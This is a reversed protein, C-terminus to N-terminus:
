ASRGPPVKAGRPAWRVPAQHPGKHGEGRQCVVPVSQNGVIATTEQNCRNATTPRAM